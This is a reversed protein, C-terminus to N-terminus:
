GFVTRRRRLLTGVGGFGMIMMAWTAPEPVGGQGGGGGDCGATCSAGHFDTGTTGFAINVGTVTYDGPLTFNLVFTGTGQIHPNKGTISPNANTYPGQGIILDHPQGGPAFLGAADLFIVGSSVGAGWHDISGAAASALHTKKDINILSGSSSFLSLATPVGSLTISIGSIERGDSIPNVQNNTLAVTLSNVATTITATADGNGDAVAGSFNWVTVAANAATSLALVSAAAALGLIRNM